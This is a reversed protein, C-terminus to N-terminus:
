RSDECSLGEREAGLLCDFLCFLRVQEFLGLEFLRDAEDLICVQVAKVSLGEVEELHHLLRGAADSHMDHCRM